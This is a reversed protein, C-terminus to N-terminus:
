LKWREEHIFHCNALYTQKQCNTIRLTDLLAEKATM